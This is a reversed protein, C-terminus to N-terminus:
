YGIAIWYVALNNGTSGHTCEEWCTIGTNSPNAFMFIEGHLPGPVDLPSGSFHLLANPFAIPFTIDWQVNQLKGSNGSEYGWQIILGSPLKQYGSSALSSTFDAPLGRVLDADLGSGAGDNGSHWVTNGNIVVNSHFEVGNAFDNSYNIVLKNGDYSSYGVLARKGNIVLDRNSTHIKNDGNGYNPFQDLSEQRSAYYSGEQGDLKDADLGSGSGDNGSHWIKEWTSWSNGIIANRLWLNKNDTFALQFTNCGTSDLWPQFTLVGHFSGGDNLADTSNGKFEFLAAKDGLSTSTDNNRNDKVAIQYKDSNASSVFGTSEIGDLLDADLGSGSGDVNKLKNLVDNASVNDLNTNAKNNLATQTANSVPKDLDSTNDVNGLGVQEKTVQHPNNTDSTHSDLSTKDAKLNLKNDITSRSYVNSSNAKTDLSDKVLKESPYKNDSPTTGFSTVKNATKEYGQSNADMKAKFDADAVNSLDKNAKSQISPLESACADINGLHPVVADINGIDNAVADINQKDNVITNINAIDQAVTNINQENDAVVNVNAINSSVNKVANIAASVTAVDGLKQYVAVIEDLKASVADINTIDGAVSNINALDGSVLGIEQLHQVIQKTGYEEFLSRIEDERNDLKKDIYQKLFDYVEKKIM